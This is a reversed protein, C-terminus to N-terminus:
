IDSLSVVNACALALIMRRGGRRGAARCGLPSATSGPSLGASHGMGSARGAMPLSRKQQLNVVIASLWLTPKRRATLPRKGPDSWNGSGRGASAPMVWRRSSRASRGQCMSSSSLWSWTCRLFRGSRYGHPTCSGPVRGPPIGNGPPSQRTSRGTHMRRRAPVPRLPTLVLVLVCPLASTAAAYYSRVPPDASLAVPLM